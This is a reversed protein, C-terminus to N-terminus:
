GDAAWVDDFRGAKLDDAPLAFVFNHGNVWSWGGEATFMALQVWDSHESLVDYGTHSAVPCGGLMDADPVAEYMFSYLREREEPGLDPGPQDSYFMPLRFTEVLRLNMRASAFEYERGLKRVLSAGPPSLIASGNGDYGHVFLSLLGAAPFLRGAVTGALDALDFQGVFLLPDGRADLPYPAGAPLDATGGLRTTGLADLVVPGANAYSVPDALLLVAPRTLAFLDDRYVGADSMAARLTVGVVDCWPRSFDAADPLKKGARHAEVFRRLFPGRPDGREELWDAYVLRRTDDTPHDAIGCVLAFEDPSDAAREVPVTPM